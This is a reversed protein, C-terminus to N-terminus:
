NWTAVYVDNLAPEVINMLHWNNGPAVDQFDFGKLAAGGRPDGIMDGIMQELEQSATGFIGGELSVNLGAVSQPIPQRGDEKGTAIIELVSEKIREFVDRYKRALPWRETMVYLM